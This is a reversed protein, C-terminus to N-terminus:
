LQHFKTRRTAQHREPRSPLVRLLLRACREDVESQGFFYTVKAGAFRLALFREVSCLIARRLTGVGEDSYWLAARVLLLPGLARPPRRAVYPGSCVVACFSALRAGRGARRARARGSRASLSGRVATPAAGPRFRVRARELVRAHASAVWEARRRRAGRGGAVPLACRRTRASRPGGGGGCVCM